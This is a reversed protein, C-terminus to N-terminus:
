KNTIDQNLNRGLAFARSALHQTHQMFTERASAFFENKEQDSWSTNHVATLLIAMYEGIDDSSIEVDVVTKM